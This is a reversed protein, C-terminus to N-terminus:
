PNVTTFNESTRISVTISSGASALGRIKDRPDLYFAHTLQLVSNPEMRVNTAIAYYTSSLSQYWDLSFTVPVSSTNSVVVSDVTAKFSTPVTYVDQNSTTLVLGVTRNKNTTAM